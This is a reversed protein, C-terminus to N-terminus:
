AIVQETEKVPLPHRERFDSVIGNLVSVGEGVTFFQHTQEDYNSSRSPQTRIIQTIGLALAIRAVQSGYDRAYGLKENLKDCGKELKGYVTVMNKADRRDVKYCDYFAGDASVGEYKESVYAKVAFDALPEEGFSRSLNRIKWGNEVSVTDLTIVLDWDGYLGKEEKTRIILGYVKKDAKDAM